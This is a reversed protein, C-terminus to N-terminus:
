PPFESLVLYRGHELVDALDSKVRFHLIGEALVLTTAGGAELAARHAALDVGNAYGSVINAGRQALERAAAGAIALGRPSSKRSGAFGVGPRSLIDLDGRAFLVPPAAEGLVSTLSSPYPELGKVLVRIGHAALQEALRAAQ